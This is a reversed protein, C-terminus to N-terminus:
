FPQDDDGITENSTTENQADSLSKFQVGSGVIVGKKKAKREEKTQGEAVFHTKELKWGGGEKLVTKNSLEVVELKYNKQNHTVGKKDTYSNPEIREKDIKSLDITLLIKQM